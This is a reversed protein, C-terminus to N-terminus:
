EYILIYLFTDGELNLVENSMINSIFFGKMLTKM